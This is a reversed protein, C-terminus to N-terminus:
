RGGGCCVRPETPKRSRLQDVLGERRAGRAGRGNMRGCGFRDLLLDFPGMCSWGMVQMAHASLKVRRKQALGSKQTISIKIRAGGIAIIIGHRGKKCVVGVM